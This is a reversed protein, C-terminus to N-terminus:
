EATFRKGYIASAPASDTLCILWASIVVGASAMESFLWIKLQMTIFKFRHRVLSSGPPVCHMIAGLGSRAVLRKLLYVAYRVQWRGPIKLQIKTNAALASIPISLLLKYRKNNNILNLISLQLLFTISTLFQTHFNTFVRTIYIILCINCTTNIIARVRSSAQLVHVKSM